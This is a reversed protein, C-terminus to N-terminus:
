LGKALNDLQMGKGAWRGTHAGMYNRNDRLRGDPSCRALGARLKGAAISSCAQRAEIYLRAQQPLDARKLLAELTDAQCDEVEVGLTSLRAKLRAPSVEIAAPLGARELAQDALAACADLLLRALDRDFTIGRDNMARDAAELGPLDSDLWQGLFEEYLAAMIEVDLRCYTLVRELIEPPVPAAPAGLADFEAVLQKKLQATPLRAGSGKPHQLRWEAKAQDLYVSLDDGYYLEPKSLSLTLANGAMDKEVGLLTEGLYELSAAAYGAVRALEATDIWREPEPWGLKRWIHRDFTMANHACLAACSPPQFNLLPLGDGGVFFWEGGVWEVVSGEADRLVACLVETSPHEAYRRGGIEELDARSRTEFDVFAPLELTM